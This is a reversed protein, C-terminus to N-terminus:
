ESSTLQTVLKDFAAPDKAVLKEYGGPKRLEARLKELTMPEEKVPATPKLSTGRRKERRAADVFEDFYLDKYAAEYNGGFGHTKAYDEVELRDYKPLGKSGDYRNALGSHAQDERVQGLLAKVDDTTPIGAARLRRIAEQVEYDTSVTRNDQEALAAKRAQEAELAGEARKAREVLTRVRDQSKGSLAKWEAEMEDTEPQPSSEEVNDDQETEPTEEESPSDPLTEASEEKPKIDAM